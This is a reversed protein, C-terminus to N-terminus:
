GINSEVESPLGWSAFSQHGRSGLMGKNEKRLYPFIDVDSLNNAVPVLLTEVEDLSICRNGHKYVEQFASLGIHSRVIM